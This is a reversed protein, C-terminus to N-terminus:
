KKEEKKDKGEEEQGKSDGKAQEAQQKLMEPPVTKTQENVTKETGMVKGNADLYDRTTETKVRETVKDVGPPVANQKDGSQGNEKKADAQEQGKAEQGKKEEGEKEKSEQKSSEDKKKQEQEASQLTKTYSKQIVALNAPTVAKVAVIKAPIEGQESTLSDEIELPEKNIIKQAWQYANAGQLYPSTDVDGTQSGKAMRDLSPVNAQGGILSIKKDLQNQKLVESAQAALSENHALIALVNDPNKQLFDVLSTRAVSESGKPSSITHLSIKPYKSLIAKNGSLLEQSGSENPDGQLIVVQGETVKGVLTQGMLEGVKEQDPIIIGEPKVGSPLQTLALIPIEQAQSKQLTSEDGGQYILIKADELASEAESGSKIYKVTVDEKKALDDIGKTILLKNPDNENLSVAIITKNETAKSSTKNKNKGLLDQLSCGTITLSLCLPILIILFRLRKSM